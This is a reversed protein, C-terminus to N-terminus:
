PTSASNEELDQAKKFRINAEDEQGQGKYAEASARLLKIRWVPDTREMSADYPEMQARAEEYKGEACLIAAANIAAQFPLWGTTYKREFCLDVTKQYALLASTPDNLNMWYNEALSFWYLSSRGDDSSVELARKYDAEAPGGQKLAQYAQARLAYLQDVDRGLDGAKSTLDEPQLADIIEAYKREIRFNEIQEFSLNGSPAATEEAKLSVVGHALFAVCLLPLVFRGKTLLDIQTRPPAARRSLALTRPNECM